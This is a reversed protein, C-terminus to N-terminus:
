MLSILFEYIIEWFEKRIHKGENNIGGIVLKPGESVGFADIKVTLKDPSPQGNIISIKIPRRWFSKSWKNQTIEKDSSESVIPPIDKYILLLAIDVCWNGGGSVVN